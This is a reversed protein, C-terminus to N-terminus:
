DGTMFGVREGEALGRDTDDDLGVCDGDNTVFAGDEAGVFCCVEM